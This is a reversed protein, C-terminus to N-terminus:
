IGNYELKFRYGLESSRIKGVGAIYIVVNKPWFLRSNISFQAEFSKVIFWVMGFNLFNCKWFHVIKDGLYNGYVEIQSWSLNLLSLKQFFVFLCVFVFVFVFLVGPLMHGCFLQENGDERKPYLSVIIMGVSTILAPFFYKNRIKECNTLHLDLIEWWVGVNGQFSSGLKWM